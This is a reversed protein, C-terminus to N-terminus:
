RNLWRAEPNWTLQLLAQFEDPDDVGEEACMVALVARDKDKFGSVM